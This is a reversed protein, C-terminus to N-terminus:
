SRFLKETIERVTESTFHLKLKSEAAPRDILNYKKKIWAAIEARFLIMALVALAFGLVMTLVPNTELITWIKEM